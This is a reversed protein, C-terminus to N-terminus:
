THENPKQTCARQAPRYIMHELRHGHALCILMHEHTLNILLLDHSTMPWAWLLTSMALITLMSHMPRAWLSPMVLNMLMHQRAVGMLMSECTLGMLVHRSGNQESVLGEASHFVTHLDPVWM